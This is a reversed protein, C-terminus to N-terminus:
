CPPPSSQHVDGPALVHMSVIDLLWQRPLMSLPRQKVTTASSPGQVQQLRIDCPVSLQSVSSQNSILVKHRHHMACTRRRTYWAPM